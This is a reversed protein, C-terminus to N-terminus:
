PLNISTGGKCPSGTGLLGLTDGALSLSAPAALVIRQTTNMPTGGGMTWSPSSAQISYKALVGGATNQISLGWGPASTPVESGNPDLLTFYVDNWTIEIGVSALQISIRQIEGSTSVQPDGVGIMSCSLWPAPLPPGPLFYLVGIAGSVMTGVAVLGVAFRTRRNVIISRRPPNHVTDWSSKDLEVALDSPSSPVTVNQLAPRAPPSEFGETVPSNRSHPGHRSRRQICDPARRLSKFLDALGEGRVQSKEHWADCPAARSRPGLALGNFGAVARPSGTDRAPSSAIRRYPTSGRRQFPTSRPGPSVSCGEREEAGHPSRDSGRHRNEPIWGEPGEGFAHAEPHRQDEPYHTVIQDPVASRARLLPSPDGSRTPRVPLSERPRPRCISTEERAPPKGDIESSPARVALESCGPGTAPAPSGSEDSGLDRELDKSRGRHPDLGRPLQITWWASDRGGESRSRVTSSAVSEHPVPLCRM